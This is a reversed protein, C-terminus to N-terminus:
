PLEGSLGRRLAAQAFSQRARTLRHGLTGPALGFLEALTARDQGEVYAAWLLSRQQLPLDALIERVQAHEEALLLESMTGPAPDVAREFWGSGDLWRRLWSRRESERLVHYTTRWLWGGIALGDRLEGLGAVFRCLVEQGVDDPDVGRAAVARAWRLVKPAWIRVLQERAAQRERRGMLWCSVVDVAADRVSRRGAAEAHRKQTARVLEDDPAEPLGGVLERVLVLLAAPPDRAPLPVVIM